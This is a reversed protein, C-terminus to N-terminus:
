PHAGSQVVHLDLETSLDECVQVGRASNGHRDLRPSFVAIGFQGPQVAIIGGAVGSKAPLGIEYLWEGAGDYMGCTAMVSLVSRVTAGSAVQEGTLPNVGGNALTAAMAALDRCDVLVSCQDFYTRLAVEPDVKLVEAGRLLHAIARNRHGTASESAAVEHDVVLPRGAYASMTSVLHGTPDDPHHEAILGSCTIAGANVMPNSPTGRVPDLTISNFADGTPEVGVRDRVAAEGVQELAAGFVFPKSISQITFTEIADGAEYRAGDVTVLAVAFRDPDAAALEPIYSAVEGDLDDAHRELVGELLATVPSRDHSGM